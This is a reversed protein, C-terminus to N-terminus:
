FVWLDITVSSASVLTLTKKPTKNSDQADKILTYSKQRTIFWGLPARGLGHLIDTEGDVTKNKLLVGKNLPNSEIARMNPALRDQIEELVPDDTVRRTWEAM